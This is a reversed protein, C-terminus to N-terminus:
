RLWPCEGQSWATACYSAEMLFKGPPTVQITVFRYGGFMIAAVIASAPIYWLRSRRAVRQVCATEAQTPTVEPHETIRGAAIESGPTFRALVGALGVVLQTFTPVLSTLLIGTVILGETWPATAARSAFSRWEFPAGGSAQLLINVLEISNPLIVSLVLFFLAAAAFDITLLTLVFVVGWGGSPARAVFGLIYRTVAWSLWDMLANTLPLMVFFLLLMIAFQGAFIIAGAATVILTVVFVGAGAVAFLVVFASALIFGGGTALAMGGTDSASGQAASAAAFAMSFAILVAFAGLAAKAIFRALEADGGALGWIYGAAKYIARFSVALAYVFGVAMLVFIALQPLTAKGSKVGNALLSLAYFSIPYVFAMALCREFAQGSWPPGFWDDFWDSLRRVAVRYGHFASGMGLRAKLDLRDQHNALQARLSRDPFPLLWILITVLIILLATISGVVGWGQWAVFASGAVLALGPEIVPEM